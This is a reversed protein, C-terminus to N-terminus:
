KVSERDKKMGKRGEKRKKKMGHRTRYEWGSM